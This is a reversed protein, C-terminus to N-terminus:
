KQASLPKHLKPNRKLKGAQVSKPVLNQKFESSIIGDKNMHNIVRKVRKQIGETLYSVTEQYSNNFITEKQLSEINDDRNVIVIGSGKDASSIIIDKNHPLMYCADNIKM